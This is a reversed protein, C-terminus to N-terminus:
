LRPCFIVPTVNPNKFITGVYGVGLEFAGGGAETFNSATLDYSLMVKLNNIQVGGLIEFADGFRYGLGGIVTTEKERNILYDATSQIVFENFGSQTQYLLAPNLRVNESMLFSSEGHVVFKPGFNDENRGTPDIGIMSTDRGGGNVLSADPSTIHAGTIGIRILAGDELETKYSLGVSIDTFSESRQTEGANVGGGSQFIPVPRPDATSPTNALSEGTIGQLDVGRNISGYSAGISFVNRYDDDMGLHYGVNLGTLQNSFNLSGAQDRVFSIGGSIWDNDLLLGKAINLEASAHPTKYPSSNNVSRWQDRYIASIRYTGRFSGTLAPNVSLPALRFNTFHIDQGVLDGQALFSTMVLLLALVRLFDKM